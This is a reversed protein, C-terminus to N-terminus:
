QTPQILPSCCEDDIPKKHLTLAEKEYRLFVQGCQDVQQLEKEKYYECRTFEFTIDMKRQKNLMTEFANQCFM